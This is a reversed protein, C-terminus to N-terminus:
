APSSLMPYTLGIQRRIEDMTEMVAVSESLPMIPSETENNRIRLAVEAAEFRLGKGPGAGTGAPSEFEEKRGDMRHLTFSTPGYFRNGVDIAGETGAIFARRPTTSSLTCTVVAQAGSEYHLVASTLADVGTSTSESLAALAKPQGLIMSAWSVAYVGLDLLAGGGLGRAFLRHSPDPVFWQGVDASLAVVEGVAGDAVLERVRRAHPLFRTWMAEMCFVGADRAAQVVSKAEAANMTFPKEVLVHKGASIALLAAPAHWPHPTAVYVADIHPDSMLEAWSGYGRLGEFTAEFESVFQSAAVHTRSGVAVLRADPLGALDEAFRHAIGGTGVIGWGLPRTM